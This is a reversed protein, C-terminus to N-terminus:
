TGLSLRLGSRCSKEVRWSWAVMFNVLILETKQTANVDLARYQDQNAM